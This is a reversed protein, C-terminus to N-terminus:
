RRYRSLFMLGGVLLAVAGAALLSGNLESSVSSPKSPQDSNNNNHNSNNSPTQHEVKTSKTTPAPTSNQSTTTTTTSQSPTSPVSPSTITNTTTTTQNSNSNSNSTSLNATPDPWDAFFTDAVKLAEEDSLPNKGLRIIKISHRVLELLRGLMNKGNGDGGDAWYSDNKTHEILKFQDKL